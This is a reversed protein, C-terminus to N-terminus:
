KPHETKGHDKTLIYLLIFKDIAEQLASNNEALMNAYVWDAYTLRYKLGELPDIRPPVNHEVRHRVTSGIKRSYVTVGGDPSEYVTDKMKYLEEM